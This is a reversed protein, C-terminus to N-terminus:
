PANRQKAVIQERAWELDEASFPPESERGYDITLDYNARAYMERILLGLDIVPEDDDARLPLRFLQLLSHGENFPTRM